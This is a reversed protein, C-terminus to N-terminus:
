AQNSRLTNMRTGTDLFSGSSTDETRDCHCDGFRNASMSSEISTRVFEVMATNERMAETRAKECAALSVYRANPVVESFARAEINWVALPYHYHGCPTGEPLPPCKSQAVAGAAVLFLAPAVWRVKQEIM